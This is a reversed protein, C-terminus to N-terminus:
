TMFAPLITEPKLAFFLLPNFYISHYILNSEVPQYLYARQGYPNGWLFVNMLFNMGYLLITVGGLGCLTLTISEALTGALACVLSTMSFTFLVLALWGSLIYLYATVLEASLGFLLINFVFSFTLVFCGPLFSMVLGAVFRTSFLRKRSMGLSFYVDVANKKFLFGFTMIANVATGIIIIGILLVTVLDNFLYYVYRSRDQSYFLDNPVTFLLMLLVTAICAPLIVAKASTLVSHKVVGSPNYSVQSTM